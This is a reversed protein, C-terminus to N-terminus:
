TQSGSTQNVSPKVGLQTAGESPAKGFALIVYVLAILVASCAIVFGLRLGRRKAEAEEDNNSADGHALARRESAYQALAQNSDVGVAHAFSRVFGRVYVESPLREYNGNEIDQLQAVTIRTSEALQDLSLGHSMRARKLRQGLSDPISSSPSHPVSLAM